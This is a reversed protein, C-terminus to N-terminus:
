NKLLKQEYSHNNMFDLLDPLHTKINNKRYRDFNVCYDVFQQQKFEIDVCPEDLLKIVTKANNQVTQYVRDRNRLNIDHVTDVSVSQLFKESLQQKIQNRLDKPLVNLKLFDPNELVNSDVILNNDLAFQLFKHYNCASLAQPVTRLVVDFRDSRHRAWKLINEVVEETNGAQRIYDNELGIGELSIEVVVSSFNGLLDVLESDYVSGNTVFTFHFNTHKNANLFKLLEKFRKHYLPEGGMIHLCYIQDNNLLHDLFVNWAPGQTWDTLIPTDQPIINIKKFTSALLSSNSPTCMMCAMNCLNSFSVHYFRPKLNKSVMLDQFKREEFSQKFDRDPFIQYQLNRRVRFSVINNKDNKYCRYCQELSNGQSIQSRVHNITSSENFYEEPSMTEINDKLPINKTSAAHCFNLSGDSNIKLEAYPGVCFTEPDVNIM